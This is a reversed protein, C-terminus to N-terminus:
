DIADPASTSGAEDIARQGLMIWSVPSVTVKGIVSEPNQWLWSDNGTALIDWEGEDLEIEHEEANRNYVICLYEWPSSSTDDTNDVMYGVLGPQAWTNGIRTNALDSKDCLGPLQRRLAILGRYYNVMDAEDAVQQWSLQNIEIPANHSNAHGGKSRCFSEGSLM